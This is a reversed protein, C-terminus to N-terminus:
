IRGALASDAGRVRRNDKRNVIPNCRRSVRKNQMAALFHADGRVSAARSLSRHWNWRSRELRGAVGGLDEIPCIRGNRGGLPHKLRGFGRDPALHRFAATEISALMRGVPKGPERGIDLGHTLQSAPSPPQSLSASETLKFHQEECQANGFIGRLNCAANWHALSLRGPEPVHTHISSLGAPELLASRIQDRM